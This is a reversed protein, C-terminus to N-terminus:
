DFALWSEGRKDFTSWRVTVKGDQVALAGYKLADTALEHIALTLM